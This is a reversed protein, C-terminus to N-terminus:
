AEEAVLRLTAASLHVYCLGYVRGALERNGTASRRCQRESRWPWRFRVLARCRPTM